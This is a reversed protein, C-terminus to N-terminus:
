KWHLKRAFGLRKCRKSFSQPPFFGFSQRSMNCVIFNNLNWFTHFHISFMKSASDQNQQNSLCWFLSASGLHISVATLVWCSISTVSIGRLGESDLTWGVFYTPIPSVLVCKPIRTHSIRCNERVSRSYISSEVDAIPESESPSWLFCFWCSRYHEKYRSNWGLGAVKGSSKLAQGLPFDWLGEVSCLGFAFGFALRDWSLCDQLVTSHPPNPCRLNGVSCAGLSIGFQWVHSWVGGCRLCSWVSPSTGCPTVCPIDVSEESIRSGPCLSLISDTLPVACCCSLRSVQSTRLSVFSQEELVM